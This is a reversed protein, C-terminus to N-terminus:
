RKDRQKNFGLMQLFYPLSHFSNEGKEQMNQGYNVLIRWKEDIKGSRIILNNNCSQPLFFIFLQVNHFMSIFSCQSFLDNQRYLFVDSVLRHISLLLSFRTGSRYSTYPIFSQRIYRKSTFRDHYIVSQNFFHWNTGIKM